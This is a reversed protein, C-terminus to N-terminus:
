LEPAESSMNFVNSNSYGKFPNKSGNHLLEATIALGHSSWPGLSIEQNWDPWIIVETRMVPDEGYQVKQTLLIPNWGGGASDTM